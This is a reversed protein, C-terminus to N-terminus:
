VPDLIIIYVTCVCVCVSLRTVIEPLIQRQTVLGKEVIPQIQGPFKEKAERGSYYREYDYRRMHLDYIGPVQFM